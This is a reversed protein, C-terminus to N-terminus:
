PGALYLDITRDIISRLANVSDDDSFSNQFVVIFDAKYFEGIKRQVIAGESAVWDRSKLQGLGIKSHTVKFNREPLHPKRRKFDLWSENNGLAASVILLNEMLKSYTNNNESSSEYDVLSHQFIHAYLNAMDFCTSAQAVEGDNESPIRIPTMSGTFTGGVWIGTRGEPFFFGGTTLTGNIWSYSLAEISAAAANNDGKIIMDQLYKQFQPQFIVEYSHNMTFIQEYKPTKQIDKENVPTVAIKAEKLIDLFKRNIIEDFDSKLRAYMDNPTSIGSSAIALNASKRLEYAAYLVGVKILSATYFSKGYEIGAHKFEMSPTDNIVVFSIVTRKISPLVNSAEKFATDLCSQLFPNAGLLTPYPTPFPNTM